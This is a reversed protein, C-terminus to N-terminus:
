QLDKADFRLISSWRSTKELTFSRVRYWRTVGKEFPLEIHVGSMTWNRLIKSFSETDSEQLEYGDAGSVENWSLLVRGLPRRVPKEFLPRGLLDGGDGNDIDRVPADPVRAACGSASLICLLILIYSIKRM